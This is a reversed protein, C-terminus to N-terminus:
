CLLQQLSYSQEANVGKVNAGSYHICIEFGCAFFLSVLIIQMAM